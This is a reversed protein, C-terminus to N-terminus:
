KFWGPGTFTYTAICVIASMPKRPPSMVPIEGHMRGTSGTTNKEPTSPSRACVAAARGYRTIAPRTHLKLTTVRAPEATRDASCRGWSAIRQAASTTSVSIPRPRIKGGSCCRISHGNARM